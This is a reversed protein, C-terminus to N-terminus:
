RRLSTEMPSLMLTTQVPGVLEAAMRGAGVLMATSPEVLSQVGIAEPRALTKELTAIVEDLGAALNSPVLM